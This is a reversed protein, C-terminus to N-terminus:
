AILSDNEPMYGVLTRIEDMEGRIDHGFVKATGSSAPCFGLLAHILTSKGAGNPGLLGINRSFLAVQLDKLIERKGFRVSLENLEIVPQLSDIKRSPLKFEHEM